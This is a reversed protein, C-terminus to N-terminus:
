RSTFEEEKKQNWEFKMKSQAPAAPAAGAHEHKGHKDHKYVHQAKKEHGPKGAHKSRWQAKMREKYSRCEPSLKEWNDHLCIGPNPSGACLRDKDAHCAKWGEDGKGGGEAFAAMPVLLVALALYRMM